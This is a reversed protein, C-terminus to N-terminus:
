VLVYAVWAAALALVVGASVRRSYGRTGSGHAIVIKTLSNTSLAVVIGLLATGEGVGGSAFLTALSAGVAHADAFAAVAAGIMVGSDGLARGLLTSALTVAGVLGAFVVASLLSFARGRKAQPQADARSARLAVFVAFAAAAVGGAALPVAARLALRPSAMTILAAMQVFTAVTSAAAGAVASPTVAEDEKARAGMAGITASSSVFGSFFGALILGYRPGVWRQAVYGGFTLAMMTVALRALTYPNVVQWPDIARNPILPLVVVAAVGLTLADILEDTTVPRTVAKHVRERSALLLAVVMAAGIAVLPERQAFAGLTYVMLLAVDTTMALGVSRVRLKPKESPPAAGEDHAGEVPPARPARGLRNWALLATVAVGGFILTATGLHLCVAGLLAVLAFTRIGAPAWHRPERKRREREVGVLLGVVLGALLRLALAPEVSVDGFRRAHRM